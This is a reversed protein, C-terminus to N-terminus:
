KIIEVENRYMCWDCADKPLHDWQVSVTVGSFTVTGTAGVHIFDTTDGIDSAVDYDVLARVRDGEKIIEVM